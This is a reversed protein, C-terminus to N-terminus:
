IVTSASIMELLLYLLLSNGYVGYVPSVTYIEVGQMQIVLVTDGPTFGATNSVAMKNSAPIATVATHPYKNAGRVNKINGSINSQFGNVPLIVLPLFLLVASAALIHFHHKSRM